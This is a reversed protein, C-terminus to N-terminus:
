DLLSPTGDTAPSVKGRQRLAEQMLDVFKDPGVFGTLRLDCREEGSPGIFVVTPVGLIDYEERLRQVEPTNEKTLDAKLRTFKESLAIVEEDTFTFKDLEKCPLCWDAYFDIIVPKGQQISQQVLAADYPQWAVHPTEPKPWLLFAGLLIAATGVARKVWPFLRGEATSKELWGLYVGGAIATVILSGWYVTESLLPELFYIAMAILVFGFVKKVWTMWVGSRPLKSAAGSFAGLFLFPLGLGLSLVFFMSFGMLPQGLDGVFILLGLVFPGICPAAVIGVTLGMLFSGMVGQRSSGGLMALKQPVRIEFAGFMSSALALLVLAVFILALPNQLISGLMGGSLAALLGLTSYTIAMGLVYVAALGFSRSLKGEAQNVFFGITIPILPYVCPTLNLALGGVFILFFTLLMGKEEIWRGIEGGSLGEGGEETRAAGAEFIEAHTASVEAEPAVVEVPVEFIADTPALCQVDNCAQYHLNGKVTYRGVPLDEAARINAFLIVTGAYVAVEEESFSFKQLEHLPYRIDSVQLGGPTEFSLVTPILFEDSPIHSNIHWAEDIRARVAIRAEGGQRLRDQSLFAEAAVIEKPPPASLGEVQASVQATIILLLVAVTRMLRQM